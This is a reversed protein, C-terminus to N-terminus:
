DHYICKPLEFGNFNSSASITYAGMNRFYIFQGVDLLPLSINHVICDLADCTPGFITSKHLQQTSDHNLVQPIPKAHDFMICNFSQYIGDNIYYLISPTSMRRGIINVVLTHSETVFYRGPEAIIQMTPFLELLLPRIACTIDQFSILDTDVGPFGGGIDVISMSVNLNKAINVVQHAQKIATVFASVNQNGSGVHFSVGVIKLGLEKATLLLQSCDSLSAGFKSSFPCIAHSDDTVIRLLLEAEPYVRHIKILEDQNDFTMLKIGHQKAFAIHSDMKVPNAFIIRHGPVGLSLVREIEVQSACDFNCGLHALTSIIQPDPNCKVAYFPTVQPLENLWKLYKNVISKLDVIYFPNRQNTSKIHSQILDPTQDDRNFKRMVSECILM